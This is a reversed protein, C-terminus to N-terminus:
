GQEREQERLETNLSEIRKQVDSITLHATQLMMAFNGVHPPEREPNNNDYGIEQAIEETEKMLRNLLFAREDEDVYGHWGRFGREKDHKRLEREMCLAFYLVDPRLLEELMVADSKASSYNFPELKHYCTYYLLIGVENRIPTRIKCNISCFGDKDKNECRLPHAKRVVDESTPAQSSATKSGPTM